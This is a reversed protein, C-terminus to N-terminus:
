VSGSSTFHINECRRAYRDTKPKEAASKAMPIRLVARAQLRIVVLEKREGSDDLPSDLRGMSFALWFVLSNAARLPAPRSRTLPSAALSGIKAIDYRATM